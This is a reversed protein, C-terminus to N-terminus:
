RIRSRIVDVADLRRWAPGNTLRNDARHHVKRRQRRDYRKGTFVIRRYL